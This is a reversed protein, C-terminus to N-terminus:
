PQHEQETALAILVQIAHKTGAPMREAGLFRRIEGHWESVDDQLRTLQRHTKDSDCERCLMGDEPLTSPRWVFGCDRCLALQTRDNYDVNGM